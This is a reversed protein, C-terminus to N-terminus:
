KRIKHYIMHSNINNKCAFEPFYGYLMAHNVIYDKNMIWERIYETTLQHVYSTVIVNASLKDM